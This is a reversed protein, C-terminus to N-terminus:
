TTHAHTCYRLLKACFETPKFRATTKEDHTAPVSSPVGVFNTPTANHGSNNATMLTSLNEMSQRAIQSSASYTHSMWQYQYTHMGHYGAQYAAKIGQDMELLFHLPGLLLDGRSCISLHLDSEHPTQQTSKLSTWSTVPFPESTWKVEQQPTHSGRYTSPKRSLRMDISCMNQPDSNTVLLTSIDSFDVVFRIWGIATRSELCLRRETTHVQLTIDAGSPPQWDCVVVNTLPIHLIQM